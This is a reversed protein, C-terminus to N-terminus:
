RTDLALTLISSDTEINCSDTEINVFMTSTESDYVSELKKTNLAKDVLSVSLIESDIFDKTDDESLFYGWQECCDQRNDILLKITETETKIVFGNFYGSWEDSPEENGSDSFVETISIIKNM